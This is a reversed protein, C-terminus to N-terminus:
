ADLREAGQDSFSAVRVTLPRERGAFAARLRAAVPEALATPVISLITSGSGSLHTGVAGAADAVLRCEELDPNLRARFREHWAGTFLGRLAQADSRAFAAVILATRQLARVADGRTLDPPLIRRAESTKVEFAPISLVACLGRPAAFRATRTAGDVEGALTFGGLCAAAVNDPHGEAAAAVGLAGEPDRPVGALEQYALALAVIITASSGMGRAIPVEGRVTPHLLPLAGGGPWRAQALARVRDSLALLGPGHEDAADAAASTALTVENYLGLAMGLCDFGHGLNTTSAPVRYRLM